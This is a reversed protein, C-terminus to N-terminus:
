DNIEFDEHTVKERKVIVKKDEWVLSIKDGPKLQLFKRVEEPVTIQGKERIKATGLLKTM